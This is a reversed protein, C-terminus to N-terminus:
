SVIFLTRDTVIVKHRVLLCGQQVTAMEEMSVAQKVKFLKVLLCMLLVATRHAPM